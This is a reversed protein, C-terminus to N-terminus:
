CSRDRLREVTARGLRIATRRANNDERIEPVVGGADTVAVLCYAGPRVGAVDIFQDALEPTYVDAYGVSLGIRTGEECDGPRRDDVEFYSRPPSGPLDPRVHLADVVCFSVKGSTRVRRGARLLDYRVFGDIHFHAHVDHFILCAASRATATRDTRRDFRGDDDADGYVRQEAAYSRPGDCGPKGPRIEFPGRGVNAIQHTFRLRRGGDSRDLRVDSIPDTVLDPLLPSGAPAAGSCGAGLALLAAALPALRM